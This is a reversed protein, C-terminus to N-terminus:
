RADTTIPRRPGRFRGLRHRDRAGPRGPEAAADVRAPRAQAALRDALSDDPSEFIACSYMMTDDLVRRFLENGVDYHAHINDCTANSTPPVCGRSRTSSPRAVRHDSGPVRIRARSTGTRWGSFAPSTTPTGGVTPTRSASGSAVTACCAAYCVRTTCTWARTSAPAGSRSRSTGFREAGSEDVLELTGGTMRGLLSGVVRQAVSDFMTANGGDDVRM